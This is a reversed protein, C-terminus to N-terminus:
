NRGRSEPANKNGIPGTQQQRTTNYVWYRGAEPYQQKLKQQSVNKVVCVTTGCQRMAVGGCGPGLRENKGPCQRYIFHM